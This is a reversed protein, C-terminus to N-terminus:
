GALLVRLRLLDFGARVDPAQADQDPQCPRRRRRLELATHLVAMRPSSQPRVTSVSDQPRWWRRRPRKERIM